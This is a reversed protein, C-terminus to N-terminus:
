HIQGFDPITVNGGNGCMDATVCYQAPRNGGGGPGVGKSAFKFKAHKGKKKKTVIQFRYTFHTKSFNLSLKNIQLWFYIKKRLRQENQRSTYKHCM